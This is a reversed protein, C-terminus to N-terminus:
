HVLPGQYVKGYRIWSVAPIVFSGILIASTYNMNASTVPWVPPLSLFLCLLVTFVITLINASITFWKPMKYPPDWASDCESADSAMGDNRTSSRISRALSARFPSAESDPSAM